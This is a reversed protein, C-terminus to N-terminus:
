KEDRGRPPLSKESKLFKNELELLEIRRNAAEKERVNQIEKEVREFHKELLVQVKEVFRTFKEDLEDHDNRLKEVEKKSQELKEALVLHEKLASFIEKINGIM